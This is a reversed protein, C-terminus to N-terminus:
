ASALKQLWARLRAPKVPKHLLELEFARTEQLRASELDGTILLAPLQTGFRDRLSAVVETGRRNDPLRLDTILADLREVSRAARIAADASAATHVTCGWSELLQRTGTLIDPDDDVVMVTLDLETGTPLVAPRRKSYLRPPSERYPLTLTFSSGKGPESRLHLPHDLLRALRQVISLGLGLGKSRDREPNDLQTFEEFILEKHHDAIGVGTDIVSLQLSGAVRRCRITVNGAATYRIANTVLNRLIRELLTPDSETFDDSCEVSLQLNRERAQPLSDNFVRDVVTRVPFIEIEPRLVGADIRSIDLLASFLRDLVGVSAGISTALEHTKPDTAHKDLLESYLSLAHLPQRLDHSAAALFKSKALSALELEHSRRELKKVLDTNEFRLQM